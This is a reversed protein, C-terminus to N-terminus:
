EVLEEQKQKLRDIIANLAESENNVEKISRESRNIRLEYTRIKEALEQERGKMKTLERDKEELARQREGSNSSEGKLTRELESKESALKAIKENLTNVKM